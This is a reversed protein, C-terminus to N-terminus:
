EGSYPSKGGESNTLVGSVRLRQIIENKSKRVTIKTLM